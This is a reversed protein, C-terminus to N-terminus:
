KTVTSKGATADQKKAAPLVALKANFDDIGKEFATKVAYRARKAEEASAERVNIGCMIIPCDPTGTAKQPSSWMDKRMNGFGKWENDPLANLLSVQLLTSEQLDRQFDENTRPYTAPAPRLLETVIAGLLPSQLKSDYSCFIVVANPTGPKWASFKAFSKPDQQIIERILDETTNADQKTQGPFSGLYARVPGPRPSFNHDELLPELM